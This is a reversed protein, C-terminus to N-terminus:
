IRALTAHPNGYVAYALWTAEKSERAKQRACITAEALTQNKLLGDYLTQSFERAAKDDVSWLAATLMGAGHDLFAKSFGGISTINYGARAVQCANLVVIPGVGESDTLYPLAEIAAPPLKETVYNHNEIRGELLLEAHRIDASDAFGHGAFHLLDFAGRKKLMARFPALHPTVRQAQFRDEMFDIETQAWPLKYKDDPYDPIVYHCRGQRALLRLPPWILDENHMWRVLGMQGLFLTQPPLGKKAPNKLHILEWPIFPEDSFVLIEKILARAKWLDVQLKEPILQDWMAGGIDRLEAQFNEFDARTSLYRKEIDAYVGNIYDIRNGKLAKSEYSTSLNLSPSEFTFYYHGEGGHETEKITLQHRPWEAPPIPPSELASGEFPKRSPPRKRRAVIRCKLTVNILPQVGQRLRILIEGQGVHTPTVDFVVTWPKGLEPVSSTARTDEDAQFNKIPVLDIILKVGKQVPASGTGFIARVAAVAERSVTVDVTTTKDAVVEDDMQALLHCVVEEPPTAPQGGGAGASGGRNTPAREQGGQTAPPAARPARREDRGETFSPLVRRSLIRNMITKRGEIQKAQAALEAVSAVQIEPEAVGIVKGNEVGVIRRGWPQPATLRPQPLETLSGHASADTEHLNLAVNLSADPQHSILPLAEESRFAYHLQKGEHMRRVVVYSPAQKRIRKEIERGGDEAVAVLVDTDM